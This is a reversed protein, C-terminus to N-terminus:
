RGVSDVKIQFSPADAIMEAPFEREHWEYKADVYLVKVHRRERPKFLVPDARDESIIFAPIAGQILVVKGRRSYDPQYNDFQIGLLTVVVVLCVAFFVRIANDM